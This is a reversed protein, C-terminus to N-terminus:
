LTVTAAADQQRSVSFLSTKRRSPLLGDHGEEECEQGLGRSQDEDDDEDDGEANSQDQTKEPKDLVQRRTETM